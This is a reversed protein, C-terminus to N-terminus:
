LTQKNLRAFSFLSFFERRRRRKTQLLCILAFALNLKPCTRQRWAAWWVLWCTWSRKPWFTPLTMERCCSSSSSRRSTVCPCFSRYGKMIFAVACDSKTSACLSIQLIYKILWFQQVFLWKSGSYKSGKAPLVELHPLLMVACSFFFTFIDGVVKLTPAKSTHTEEPHDM